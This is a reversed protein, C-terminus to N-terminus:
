AAVLQRQQGFLFWEALYSLNRSLFSPPWSHPPTSCSVTGAAAPVGINGLRVTRSLRRSKGGLRVTGEGLHRANPGGGV